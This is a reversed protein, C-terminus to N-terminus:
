FSPDRAEASDRDEYHFQTRRSNGDVFEGEETKKQDESM